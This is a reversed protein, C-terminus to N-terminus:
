HEAKRKLINGVVLLLTGGLLLLAIFVLTPNSTSLTLPKTALTEGQGAPLSLSATLTVTPTLGSRRTSTPTTTSVQTPTPVGETPTQTQTDSPPKILIKDGPYIWAANTLNNLAILEELGVQYSAAITWLTQGPQVVHVISGDPRPTAVVVPYFTISTSVPAATSGTGSGPSGAIYGVDLTYYVVGGASAVGAGADRYNAGIMTNMHLSDGQWMQVAGRYSLNTGGAINESIFVTAGGGYGFAIARDRPRTGGAGTHTISGISAQYESHSQAAAMLASNIQYPPLGYAQRLQNVAAILDYASGTQAQAELPRIGIQSCVLLALTLGVGWINLPARRQAKRPLKGISQGAM